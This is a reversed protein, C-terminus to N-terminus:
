IAKAKAVLTAGEKGSRDTVAFSLLPVRLENAMHSIMHAVVSCQPGIIGVIDKEMFRLAIIVFVVFM